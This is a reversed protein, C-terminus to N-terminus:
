SSERWVQTGKKVALPTAGILSPNRLFRPLLLPAVRPSGKLPITGLTLPSGVSSNAVEILEPEESLEGGEPPRRRDCRSLGDVATPKSLKMEEDGSIGTASALSFFLRFDLCEKESTSM